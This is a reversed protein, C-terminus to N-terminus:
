NNTYQFLISILVVNFTTAFLILAGEVGFRM